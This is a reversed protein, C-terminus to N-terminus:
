CHSSKTLSIACFFFIPSNTLSSSGLTGRHNILQQQKLQQSQQQGEILEVQWQISTVGQNLEHLLQLGAWFAGEYAYDNFHGSIVM